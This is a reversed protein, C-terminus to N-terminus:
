GRRLNQAKQLYIRIAMRKLVGYASEAEIPPFGGYIYRDLTQLSTTLAPEPLHESFDKTTYTTYPINEVREIYAKWLNLAREMPGEAGHQKVQLVLKDFTRVFASHRRREVWLGFYRQLPKGLFINLLAILGVFLSIGIIWYPYNFHESVPLTQIAAQLTDTKAGDEIIRQYLQTTPAYVPLSDGQILIYFVPLSLPLAPAGSFAILEYEASDLVTSDDVLRTPFWTLKRLEFPTFDYLSDPFITQTKASRQVTLIYKVPSAVLATDTDFRGLPAPFLPTDQAKLQLGCLLVFAWLASGLVKLTVANHKPLLLWQEAYTGQQRGQCSRKKIQAQYRAM